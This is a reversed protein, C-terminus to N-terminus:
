RPALATQDGKEGEVHKKLIRKVEKIALPHNHVFHKSKIVIESQAGDLHASEYEVLGDNGGPGLYKNKSAIISHYPINPNMPISNMTELIDSSPSLQAIANPIRSKFTKANFTLDAQDLNSMDKDLHVVEQPQTTMGAGIRGFLSDAVKSGRHPTAIFVIRKVFQPHEFFMIPKIFDKNTESLPVQDFPLTFLENWYTDSSNQNIMHSLVGGLSHAVLVMQNFNPNTHDPDYQQQINMLDNRLLSASYIIPLGTPYLFIWFQYKDRIEPDGRLDNFMHVWTEPTSMLGHVMVVPIKNHRYPELMSIGTQKLYIDSRKMAAFGLDPAQVKTMLMGLPTTFDAELPVERGNIEIADTILTDYFALTLDRSRM